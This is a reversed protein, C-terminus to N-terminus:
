NKDYYSKHNLSVILSSLSFALVIQQLVRAHPFNFMSDIIFASIVLLLTLFFIFQDISSSHYMSKLIYYISTIFIFLYSLLGLVGLEVGIELFDNHAHYPVTYNTINAKDWDISNIKWNGLGVPNFPNSMIYNFSYKYYRLRIDTSSDQKSISSLRKNIDVSNSNYSTTNFLIVAFLLPVFWLSINYLTKYFSLNNRISFFIFSSFTIFSLLLLIIISSRSSLILITYVSISFFIAYFVKLFLMKSKFLLYFLFPLQMCFLAATINKNAAIGSLFPAFSFDYLTQSIIQIYGQFSFYLEFFLFFSFILLSYYFKIKPLLLCLLIITSFVTSWQSLKIIAESTNYAYSLSILGQLIFILYWILIPSKLFHYNHKIKFLYILLVLNFCSLLFWQVGVRDIVDFENVFSISILLFIFIYNINIKKLLEM